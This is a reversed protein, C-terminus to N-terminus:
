RHPHSYWWWTAYHCTERASYRREYTRYDCNATVSDYGFLLVSLGVTAASLAAARRASRKLLLVSTCALVFPLFAKASRAFWPMYTLLENWFNIRPSVRIMRWVETGILISWVGLSLTFHFILLCGILLM